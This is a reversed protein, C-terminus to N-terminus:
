LGGSCVPAVVSRYPDDTGRIEFSLIREALWQNVVSREHDDLVNEFEVVSAGQIKLHVSLSAPVSSALLRIMRKPGLKFKLLAVQAREAAALEGVARGGEVSLLDRFGELAHDGVQRDGDFDASGFAGVQFAAIGLGSKAGEESEDHGGASARNKGLEFAQGFGM